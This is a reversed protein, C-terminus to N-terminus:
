GQLTSAPEAYRLVAGSAPSTLLPMGLLERTSQRDGPLLTSKGEILCLESAEDKACHSPWQSLLLFPLSSSVRPGCGWQCGSLNHLSGLDRLEQGSDRSATQPPRAREAISGGLCVCGAWFEPQKWSGM